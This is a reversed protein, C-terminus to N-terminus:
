RAAEVFGLALLERVSTGSPVVRITITALGLLRAATLRHNGDSLHGSEFVIPPPPAGRDQLTFGRLVSALGEPNTVRAPVAALASLPVTREESPTELDVGLEELTPAVSNPLVSNGKKPAESVASVTDPTKKPRGGDNKPQKAQWEGAARNCSRGSPQLPEREFARPPNTPSAGLNM